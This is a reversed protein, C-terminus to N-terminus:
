RIIFNPLPHNLCQDSIALLKIIILFQEFNDPIKIIPPDIDQAQNLMAKQIHPLVQSIQGGNITIDLNEGYQERLIQQLEIVLLFSGIRISIRINTSISIRINTSISIRINTSIRISNSIRISM